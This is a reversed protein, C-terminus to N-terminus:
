RLLRSVSEVPRKRAHYEFARSSGDAEVGRLKAHASLVDGRDIDRVADRRLHDAAGEGRSHGVREDRTERYLEALIERRERRIGRRGVLQELGSGVRGEVGAVVEG